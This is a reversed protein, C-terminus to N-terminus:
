FRLREDVGDIADPDHALPHREAKLPAERLHILVINCAAATAFHAEAPRIQVLLETGPHQIERCLIMPPGDRTKRIDYGAEFVQAAM